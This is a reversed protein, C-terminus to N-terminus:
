FEGGGLKVNFIKEIGKLSLALFLGLAVPMLVALAVYSWHPAFPEGAPATSQCIAALWQWFTMIGGSFLRISAKEGSSWELVLLLPFYYSRDLVTSINKVFQLFLQCTEPCFEAGL